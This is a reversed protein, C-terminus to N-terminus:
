PEWYLWLIQFLFFNEFFFFFVSFRTCLLYSVLTIKSFYNGKTNKQQCYSFLIKKGKNKLLFFQCLLRAFVPSVSFFFLFYPFCKCKKKRLNTIFRLLVSTISTWNVMFFHIYIQYMIPKTKTKEVFQLWIRKNQTNAILLYRDTQVQVSDKDNSITQSTHFLLCLFYFCRWNNLPWTKLSRM